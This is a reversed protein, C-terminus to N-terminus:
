KYFLRRKLSKDTIHIGKVQAIGCKIRRLLGRVRKEASRRSNEITYICGAVYWSATYVIDFGEGFRHYVMLNLRTWRGSRSDRVVFVEDYLLAGDEDLRVYNDISM